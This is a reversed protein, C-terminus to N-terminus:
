GLRSPSTTRIPKTLDGKGADVSMNGIDLTVQPRGSHKPSQLAERSRTDRQNHRSAGGGGLRSPTKPREPGGSNIRSKLPQRGGLTKSTNGSTAAKKNSDSPLDADLVMAPAEALIVDVPINLGITSITEELCRRAVLLCSWSAPSLGYQPKGFLTLEIRKSKAYLQEALLFGVGDNSQLETVDLRPSSETDTATNHTPLLRDRYRGMSLKSVSSRINSYARSINHAASSLSTHRMSSSPPVYHEMEQLNRRRLDERDKALSKQVDTLHPRPAVTNFVNIIPVFYTKLEGSMLERVKPSDLSLERLLTSYYMILIEQTEFSCLRFTLKKKTTTKQSQAVLEEDRPSGMDNFLVKGEPIVSENVSPLSNLNNGGGGPSDSFEAEHSPIEVPSSFSPRGEKEFSRRRSPSPPVIHSADDDKLLGHNDPSTISPLRGREGPKGLNLAIQKQLSTLVMDSVLFNDLLAMVRELWHTVCDEWGEVRVVMTGLFGFPIRDVTDAYKVPCISITQGIEVLAVMQLDAVTQKLKITFPSKGSVSQQKEIRDKLPTLVDEGLMDFLAHARMSVRRQSSVPTIVAEGFDSAFSDRMPSPPESSSGSGNDERKGGFSTKLSQAIEMSLVDDEASCRCGVVDCIVSYADTMCIGVFKDALVPHPGRFLGFRSEVAQSNSLFSIIVKLCCRFLLMRQLAVGHLKSFYESNSSLRIADQTSPKGVVEKEQDTLPKTLVTDAISYVKAFIEKSKFAIDKLHLDLASDEALEDLIERIEIFDESDNLAEVTQFYYDATVDEDAETTLAPLYSSKRIMWAHWTANVRRSLTSHEYCHVIYIRHHHTRVLLSMCGFKGGAADSDSIMDIDSIESMKITFTRLTPRAAKDLQTTFSDDHLLPCAFFESETVGLAVPELSSSTPQYLGSEYTHDSWKLGAPMSRQVRTRNQAVIDMITDM